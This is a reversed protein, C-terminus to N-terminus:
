RVRRSGVARAKRAPRTGPPPGALLKVIELQLPGLQRREQAKM